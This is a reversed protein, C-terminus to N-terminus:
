RPNVSFSVLPIGGCDVCVGEATTFQALCRPCYSRCNDEVFSPAKVLEQPEIGNRKLFEEVTKQLRARAEREVGSASPNNGAFVPLAPYRIDRLMQEALLRFTEETCFVKALALPHFGEFLPRTLVDGARITTAPSLLITLFHTFREDEAAPYFTKHIRWFSIATGTTLALLGVVLGPWTTGLGLRGLVLPAVIFLYIFLLNAPLRVRPLEKHMDDWRKKMAKTDFSDGIMEEIDRAREKTAVKALRRLSAVIEAAFTASNAKLFLQGNVLIKKGSATVNKMEDFRFLKGTQSPRGGPNVSSAVFALIADPSVSLPFQNGKVFTGLPPFPWAFVLGGRQNGLLMGPHAPRWKRGFATLFAVSGRGLWGACEWAYIVALILFLLQLESM